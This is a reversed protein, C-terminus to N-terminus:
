KTELTVVRAKLANVESELATLREDPGPKTFDPVDAELSAELRHIIEATLTRNNTDAINKLTDRLDSGEPFRLLLQQGERKRPANVM